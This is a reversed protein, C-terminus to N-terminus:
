TMPTELVQILWSEILGYSWGKYSKLNLSLTSFAKVRNELM